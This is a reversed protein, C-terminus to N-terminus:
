LNSEIEKILRAEDINLKKKMKKSTYVALETQKSNEKPIVYVIMSYDNIGPFAKKFRTIILGSSTGSFKLQILTKRKGQYVTSAKMAKIKGNDKRGTIEARGVRIAKKESLDIMAKEVAPYVLESSYDLNKKVVKGDAKGQEYFNMESLWSESGPYTACGVFVVM